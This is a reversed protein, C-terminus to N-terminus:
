ITNLTPVPGVGTIEVIWLSDECYGTIQAHGLRGDALRVSVEGGLLDYLRRPVAHAMAVGHWSSQGPLHEDGEADLMIVEREEWLEVKHLDVYHTGDTLTVPGKYHFPFSSM